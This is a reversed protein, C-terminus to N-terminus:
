ESLAEELANKFMEKVKIFQKAGPDRKLAAEIVGKTQLHAPIHELAWGRCTVAGLALEPTQLDPRVNKFSGGWHKVMSMAMEPTQLDPRIHGFLWINSHGAIAIEAMEPTQLDPRVYVFNSDYDEVAIMAMEPTQLDPNVNKLNNGDIKVAEMAQKYTNYKYEKTM